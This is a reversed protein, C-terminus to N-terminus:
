KERESVASELQIWGLTRKIYELHITSETRIIGPIKGIKEKLFISFHENSKALIWIVLPYRGSCLGVHHVEPYSALQKAVEETKGVETMVGVVSHHVYGLRHPDPIATLQVRDTEILFKIRRRVTSEDIRLKDALQRNSQRSNKQLANIIRRDTEDITMVNFTVNQSKSWPNTPGSYWLRGYTFKIQKLEILIDISLIGPIAELKSNIYSILHEGSFFHTRLFIDASGTCLAMYKIEDHLMIRDSIAKFKSLKVQLLLLAMVKYGFTLPNIIATLKIMGSSVLRNIRRSITTESLGFQRALVKAQKRPDKQLEVILQQDIEHM